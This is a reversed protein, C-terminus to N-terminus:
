PSIGAGWCLAQGATTRACFFDGYASLDAIEVGQFAAIPAPEPYAHPDYSAMGEPDPQIDRALDGWANSGWCLVGGGSVAACTTKWGAALHTVTVNQLAAPRYPVLHSVAPDDALQGLDNLGWCWVEGAATLACVHGGGIAVSNMEVGAFAPVPRPLHNGTPYRGQDDVADQTGDGLQGDRNLGLCWLGVGSAPIACANYPGAAIRGM